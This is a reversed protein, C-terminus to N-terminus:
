EATILNEFEDDDNNQRWYEISNSVDSPKIQALELLKAYPELTEPKPTFKVAETLTLNLKPTLHM